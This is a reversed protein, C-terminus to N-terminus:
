LDGTFPAISNLVTQDVHDNSTNKEIAVLMEGLAFKGLAEKKPGTSKHYIIVGGTKTENLAAEFSIGRNIGSIKTIGDPMRQVKVKEM